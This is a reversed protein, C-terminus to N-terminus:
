RERMLELEAMAEIVVSAKVGTNGLTVSSSSEDIEVSNERGNADSQHLLASIRFILHEVDFLSDRSSDVHQRINTNQMLSPSFQTGSLCGLATQSIRRNLDRGAQQVFPAVAQNGSVSQWQMNWRQSQTCYRHYQISIEFSLFNPSLCSTKTSKYRHLCSCSINIMVGLMLSVTKTSCFYKGM